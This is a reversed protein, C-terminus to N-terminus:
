SHLAPKAPKRCEPCLLRVLNQSIVAALSSNVMFPEIGMDLLRVIAGPSTNAHLTTLLLHGTMACQAALEMTELDRIEGVMIVDPDQRLVNRLLRPYTLGIQPKIQLHAVGPLRFEVPDEVTIVCTTDRNIEMLMAYMLTTKGSGTKGNAIVIGNPLACLRKIKALDEGELGLRSLSLPVQRRDLLRLVLREGGITPVINLRLDVSTGGADMMIMGDQPLRREAVNLDCIIKVRNILQQFIGEPLPEIDRLVGDIRLRIRGRGDDTPDFHIDSAHEHAARAILADLARMVPLEDKGAAPQAPTSPALLALNGAKLSEAIRLALNDLEGTREGLDVAACVEAAFVDPYGAMAEAITKGEMIAKHIARTSELLKADQIGECLLNISELIPVGTSLLMALTAWYRVQENGTAPMGPLAFTGDALGHVVRSAAVNIAGAVEGARMMMRIARPFVQEHRKMADSITSGGAIDSRMAKVVSELSTGALVARTEDFAALVTRGLNLNESLTRWFTLYNPMDHTTSM